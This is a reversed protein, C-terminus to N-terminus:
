SVRLAECRIGGKQRTWRMGGESLAFCFGERGERLDRKCNPQLGARRKDRDRSGGGEDMRWGSESNTLPSQPQPQTPPPSFDFTEPRGLLSPPAMGFGGMLGGELGSPDFRPFFGPRFIGNLGSPRLSSPPTRNFSQSSHSTRNHRFIFESLYRIM